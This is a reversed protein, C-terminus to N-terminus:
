DEEPIPINTDICLKKAFRLMYCYNPNSEQEQETMSILQDIAKKLCISPDIQLNSIRLFLYFYCWILTYVPITGDDDPITLEEIDTPKNNLYKCVAINTLKTTIPLELIRTIFYELSNLLTVDYTGMENNPDFLELTKSHSNYFAISDLGVIPENEPVQCDPYALHGVNILFAMSLDPTLLQKLTSLREENQGDVTFNNDQWYSLIENNDQIIRCLRGKEACDFYFSFLKIKQLNSNLNTNIINKNTQVEFIDQYMADSLETVNEDISPLTMKSISDTDPQPHMISMYEAYSEKLYQQLADTFIPAIYPHTLFKHITFLSLSIPLLEEHTGSLLWINNEQNTEKRENYDEIKHSTICYRMFNTELYNIYNKLNEINDTGPVAVSETKVGPQFRSMLAPLAKKVNQLYATVKQLAMTLEGGRRKREKRIRKYSIKNRFRRQRQRQRQTKRGKQQKRGYVRKTNNRKITRM